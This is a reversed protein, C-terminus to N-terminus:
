PRINRNMVCYIGVPSQMDRRTHNLNHLKVRPSLNRHYDSIFIFSFEICGISTIKNTIFGNDLLWYNTVIFQKVFIGLYHIIFFERLNAIALYYRITSNKHRITAEWKLTIVVYCSLKVLNCEAWHSNLCFKFSQRWGFLCWYKISNERILIYKCTSDM